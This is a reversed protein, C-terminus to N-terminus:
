AAVAERAAWRRAALAQGPNPASAPMAPAPASQAPRALCWFGALKLTEVLVVIAWIVGPALAAPKSAHEAAKAEAAAVFRRAADLRPELRALDAARARQLTEIRKAPIDARLAPVAALAAEAGVLEARATTLATEAALRPAAREAEVAELGRKAAFGTFLTCGLALAIMVRARKADASAAHHALRAGIVDLAISLVILVGLVLGATTQAWGHVGLAAWAAVIAWLAAHSLWPSAAIRHLATM